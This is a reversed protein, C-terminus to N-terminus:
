IFIKTTQTFDFTFRCNKGSVFDSHNQNQLKHGVIRRGSRQTCIVDGTIVSMM